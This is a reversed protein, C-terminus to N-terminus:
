TLKLVSRLPLIRVVKGESTTIEFVDGDVVEDALVKRALLERAAARAEEMASNEDPLESGEPDEELVGGIRYHFYYRPMTEGQMDPPFMPRLRHNGHVSPITAGGLARKDNILLSVIASRSISGRAKCAIEDRGTADLPPSQIM